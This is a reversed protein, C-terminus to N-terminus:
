RKQIAKDLGIKLGKQLTKFILLACKTRTPTLTVGLLDLVEQPDIKRLDEILRNKLEETFLSASAKSIACGEGTFAIQKVRNKELKITLRISDGCYPNYDQINIDANQIMGYNQPNQWHELIIDRYVSDQM